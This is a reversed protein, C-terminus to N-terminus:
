RACPPIILTALTQYFIALSFLGAALICLRSLLLDSDQQGQRPRAFWGAGICLAISATGWFPGLPMGAAGCAGRLTMALGQQFGYWALPPVILALWLALRPRTRM